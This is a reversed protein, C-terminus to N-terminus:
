LGKNGANRKEQKIRQAAHEWAEEETRGRAFSMSFHPAKLVIWSRHTGQDPWYLKTEFCIAKPYKLLVEEKYSM